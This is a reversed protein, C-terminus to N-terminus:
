KALGLESLVSSLEAYQANMQKKTQASDLYTDAIVNADLDSKWASTKVIKSFVEDWYRIQDDSMGKPGVVTRWNASVAVIGQEKWTPIAALAGGLRHESSVGLIRVKGARLHPLLAAMPNAVVDVHGGLIAAVIEASGNFVVVKLRKVNGGAAKVLTATAIHNHNGIANAIAVSVSGPDARLREVLDKGTRLPSDARVAFGVYDAGMQALPTVDTPKASSAGMIHSTLFSPSTVMVYNGSGAHQNLYNSAIGGGGGPKNTVLVPVPAWKEERILRELLRAMMDSGSGASTPVIIEVHQDPQWTGSAAHCSASLMIGAAVATYWTLPHM